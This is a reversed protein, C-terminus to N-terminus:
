LNYVEVERQWDSTVEVDRQWDSTVEVERQWSGQFPQQLYNSQLFWHEEVCALACSVM